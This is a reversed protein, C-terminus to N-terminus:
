RNVILATDWVFRVGEEDFGSIALRPAAVTRWDATFRSLAERQAERLAVSVDETAESRVLLVLVVRGDALTFGDFPVAGIVNVPGQDPRAVVIHIGAAHGPPPAPLWQVKAHSPDDDDDIPVIDCHRVWIALGKTMGTTGVEAPQERRDIIRDTSDTFEAARADTVWQFRWDGSEHLSWKQYGALTRIAVYM